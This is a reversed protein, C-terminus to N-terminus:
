KFTLSVSDFLGILILPSIKIVCMAYNKMRLYRYAVDLTCIVLCGQVIVNLIFPIKLSLGLLALVLLCTSYADRGVVADNRKPWEEIHRLWETM